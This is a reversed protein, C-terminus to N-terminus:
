LVDDKFKDFATKKMKRIISEEGASYTVNPDDSLAQSLATSFKQCMEAMFGVVEGDQITQPLASLQENASELESELKAEFAPMKESIFAQLIASLEQALAKIGFREKDLSLESWPAQKFFATERARAGPFTISEQLEQTGPNRVAYYGYQLKHAEGALMRFWPGHERPQIVDARTLVGITREGSPDADRALRFGSQNQVDDGCNVTLLILTNAQKIANITM